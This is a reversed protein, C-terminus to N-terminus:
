YHTLLLLSILGTLAEGVIFLFSHANKFVNSQWKVAVLHVIFHFIGFANIIVWLVFNNFNLVTWLYYFALLSIPIHLYLFILYQTKESFIKLFKVMKWEGQFCADFEHMFLFLMNLVALILITNKM